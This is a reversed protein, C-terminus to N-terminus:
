LYGPCKKLEIWEPLMVLLAASVTVSLLRVDCIQQIDMLSFCNKNFIHSVVIFM